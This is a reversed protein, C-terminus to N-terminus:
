FEPSEVEDLGDPTAVNLGGYNSSSSPSSSNYDHSSSSSSSSGGNQRRVEEMTSEKGIIPTDCVKRLKEKQEETWTSNEATAENEAEKVMQMLEMFNLVTEKNKYGKEQALENQKKIKDEIKSITSDPGSSCAGLVLMGVFAFMMIFKKM